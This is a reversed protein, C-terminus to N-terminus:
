TFFKSFSSLTTMPPPILSTPTTGLTLSRNLENLKAERYQRFKFRDPLYNLDPTTPAFLISKNLEAEFLSARWNFNKPQTELASELLLKETASSQSSIDSLIDNHIKGTSLSKLDPNDKVSVNDFSELSLDDFQFDLITYLDSTMPGCIFDENYAKFYPGETDNMSYFSQRQIDFIPKEVLRITENSLRSEEQVEIPTATIETETVSEEPSTKGKDLKPSPSFPSFVGSPIKVDFLSKSKNLRRKSSKKPISPRLKPNDDTEQKLDDEMSKKLIGILPMTLMECSKQRKIVETPFQTTIPDPSQLFARGQENLTKAVTPDIECLPSPVKSQLPIVYGDDLKQNAAKTVEIFFDTGMDVNDIVPVEPIEKLTPIPSAELVKSDFIPSEDEGDKVSIFLSDKRSKEPKSNLDDIWGSLSNRRTGLWQFPKYLSNISLKKRLSNRRSSTGEQERLSNIKPSVTSSSNGKLM